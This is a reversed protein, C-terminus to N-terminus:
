RFAKRLTKVLETPSVIYWLLQNPTTEALDKTTQQNFPNTTAILICKNIRDFPM